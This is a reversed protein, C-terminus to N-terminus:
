PGADLIAAVHIAAIPLALDAIWLPGPESDRGTRAASGHRM